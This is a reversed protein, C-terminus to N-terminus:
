RLERDIIELMETAEQMREYQYLEGYHEGGIEDHRMEADDYVAQVYKRCQRLVNKLRLDKLRPDPASTPKVAYTTQYTM